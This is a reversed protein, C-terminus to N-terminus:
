QSRGREAAPLGEPCHCLEMPYESDTRGTIKADETHIQALEQFVVFDFSILGRSPCNLGRSPCNEARQASDLRHVRLSFKSRSKSGAGDDGNRVHHVRVGDDAEAVRVLPLKDVVSTVSTLDAWRSDIQYGLDPSRSLFSLKPCNGFKSKGRLDGSSVPSKM